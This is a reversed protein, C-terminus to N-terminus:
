SASGSEESGATRGDAELHRIRFTARDHISPFREGKVWKVCLLIYGLQLRYEAGTLNRGDHLASTEPLGVYTRLWVDDGMSHMARDRADLLEDDVFMSVTLDGIDGDNLFRPAEPPVPLNETRLMCGFQKVLYKSLNKAKAGWDDGYVHRWKLRRAKMLGEWNVSIYDVFQDYSRDFPQSRQNNCKACLCRSWLVAHGKKLSRLEGTYGVKAVRYVGDEKSSGRIRRLDSHKYKHESTTAPAGCIWCKGEDRIRYKDLVSPVLQDNM